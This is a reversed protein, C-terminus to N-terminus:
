LVQAIPVAGNALKITERHCDSEVARALVSAVDQRTITASGSPEITIMGTAEDNTLAAPQVIVYDLQTRTKLWEDAYFKAIYYDHLGAPWNARSEANLTSLQIFRTVGAQEAALQTKVAGDLDVSLLAKGQSGAAFIVADHGALATALEAVPATLDFHVAAFAQSGAEPAQHAPDRYGGTVQYDNDLLTEVLLRGVQGSAGVVFIKM